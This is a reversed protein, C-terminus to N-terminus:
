RRVRIPGCRLALTPCFCYRPATKESLPQPMLGSTLRWTNSGNKVVRRAVLAAGAESQVDDVVDDGVTETAPDM